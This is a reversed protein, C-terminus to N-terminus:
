SAKRKRGGKKKTTPVPVDELQTGIADVDERVSKLQQEMDKKLQGALAVRAASIENRIGAERKEMEKEAEIAFTNVANIANKDLQRTTGAAAGFGLLAGAGGGISLGLWDALELLRGTNWGILSGLAAGGITGLLYVFWFRGLSSGFTLEDSLQQAIENIEEAKDEAKDETKKEDAM